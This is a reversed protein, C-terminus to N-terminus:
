SLTLPNSMKGDNAKLGYTSISCFRHCMGLANSSRHKGKWGWLTVTRQGATTSM